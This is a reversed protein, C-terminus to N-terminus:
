AVLAEILTQPRAVGCWSRRRMTAVFERVRATDLVYEDEALPPLLAHHDFECM